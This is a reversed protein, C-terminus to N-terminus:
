RGGQKRRKWEEYASRGRQQQEGQANVGGGQPVMFPTGLQEQPVALQPLAQEVTQRPLGQPMGQTMRQLQTPDQRAADMQLDQLMHQRVRSIAHLFEDQNKFAGTNVKAAFSEIESKTLASGFQAHRLANFLEAVDSSNKVAEEGDVAKTLASGVVPIGKVTQAATSFGPIPAASRTDYGGSKTHVVGYQGLMSDISQLSNVAVLNKQMALDKIPKGSQTAGQDVLGGDAGLRGTLSVNPTEKVALAGENKLGQVGLKNQAQMEALAKRLEALQTQQQQQQEWYFEKNQKATAESGRTRANRAADILGTMEAQSAWKDYDGADPDKRMIEQPNGAGDDQPIVAESEPMAGLLREQEAARQASLDKTASDLGAEEGAFAKGGQGEKVARLIEAIGSLPSYVFYQGVQQGKPPTMRQWSNQSKQRRLELERKKRELEAQSEMYNM